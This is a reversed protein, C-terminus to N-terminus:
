VRKTPCGVPLGLHTTSGATASGAIDSGCNVQPHLVQSPRAGALASGGGGAGGRPYLALQRDIRNPAAVQQHLMGVPAVQHLQWLRVWPRLRARTRGGFGGIYAPMQGLRLSGLTTYMASMCGPGRHPSSGRPVGFHSSAQDDLPYGSLRPQEIALPLLPLYQGTCIAAAGPCPAARLFNQFDAALLWSEPRRSEGDVLHLLQTTAAPGAGADVQEAGSWRVPAHIANRARPSSSAPCANPVTHHAGSPSACTVFHKEAQNANRARQNASAPVCARAWWIPSKAISM